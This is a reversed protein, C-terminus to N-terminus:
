IDITGKERLHDLVRKFRRNALKDYDGTGQSLLTEYLSLIKDLQEDKERLKSLPIRYIGIMMEPFRPQYRTLEPAMNM